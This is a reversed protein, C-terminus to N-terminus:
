RLPRWTHHLARLQRHPVHLRLGPPNPSSPTRTTFPSHSDIEIAKIKIKLGEYGTPRGTGKGELQCRVQCGGGVLNYCETACIDVTAATVSSSVGGDVQYNSNCLVYEPTVPVNLGATAPDPRYSLEDPAAGWIGRDEAVVFLKGQNEPVIHKLETPTLPVGM